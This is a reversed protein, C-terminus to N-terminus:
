INFNNIPYYIDSVGCGYFWFHYSRWQPKVYEPYITTDLTFSRAKSVMKNWSRCMKNGANVISSNENKPKVEGTGTTVSVKNRIYWYYVFCKLMTLLDSNSKLDAWKQPIPDEQLGSLFESTLAEGLLQNLFVVEYEDIFLQLNEQVGQNSIDAINQEGGNFSNPTLISM